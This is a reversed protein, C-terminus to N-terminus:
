DISPASNPKMSNMNMRLDQTNARGLYQDIAAAARRGEAIAWVVLSQGRRMDGAAFIGDISTKFDTENAEINGRATFKLGEAEFGERNEPGIFGCAVLALECPWNQPQDPFDISDSSSTMHNRTSIATLQGHEDGEFGTSEIQWYREGGEEQSSSTRLIHPWEPWPTTSPRLDRTPMTGVNVPKPMIEFQVVSKAGQRLATGVCDSGTDGGGIVVVNKGKASIELELPITQGENRRTAQSLYSHAFHVGKLNRGHLPLDRERTSGCALLVADHESRLKELSVDTGIEIGCVFEVGEDRLLQIRREVKDKQLKFDPIGYRLLGGPQEAREFVIVRHGHRNLQQAAALGTPGSGIIAISKGSQLSPMIPKIWGKEFGMDALTMEINEISVPQSNIGLVCATECPAPCVRGTFEPFNNTSLLSELADQLHGQSALNNWEPIVNGLPCGRHCFAVGCDMCRSAQVALTEKSYRMVFEKSHSLREKPKEKDLEARQYKLFGKPDSM